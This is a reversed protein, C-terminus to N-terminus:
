NGDFTWLRRTIIFVGLCVGIQRHEKANYDGEQGVYWYHNVIITNTFLMRLDTEIVQCSVEWAGDGVRNYFLVAFRVSVVLCANININISLFV